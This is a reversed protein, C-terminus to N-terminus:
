VKTENYARDLILKTNPGGNSSKAKSDKSAKSAKEIERGMENILAQIKEDYKKNEVKDLEIDKMLKKDAEKIEEKRADDLEEDTRKNKEFKNKGKRIKRILDDFNSVLTDECKSQNIVTSKGIDDRAKELMPLDTVSFRSTKSLIHKLGDDEIDIFDILMCYAVKVMKLEIILDEIKDCEERKKNSKIDEIDDKLMEIMKQKTEIIVGNKRFVEKLKKNYTCELPALVTRYINDLVKRKVTLEDLLDENRNRIKRIEEKFSNIEEKKERLQGKTISPIKKVEVPRSNRKCSKIAQIFPSILNVIESLYFSEKVSDNETVRFLTNKGEEQLM